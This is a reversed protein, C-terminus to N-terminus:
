APFDTDTVFPNSQGDAQDAIAAPVARRAVSVLCGVLTLMVVVGTGGRSVFPLAMGKNPLLDTVVGMNICAQAAILFTVGAALLEGFRDAARNTIVAGCLLILLYAGLVGLTFALGLEEGVVPFIFDTHQEPIKFKFTGQGLGTGDAGGAGFAYLGQQVQYYANRHDAPHLFTDWRRRAYESSSVLGIFLAAVAVTPIFIHTLRVGAVLMILFSVLALLATTGKDPEGLILLLPLVPIMLLVLTGKWFGRLLHSFRAGYWALALVLAPKAFDSPQTGWLWRQAGNASTGLPSLTLALLLCVLGYIWWVWREWRRYDSAAVLTLGAFGILCAVAQKVVWVHNARLMTASALM